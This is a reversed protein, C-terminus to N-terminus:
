RDRGQAVPERVLEFKHPAKKRGKIRSSVANKRKKGECVSLGKESNKHCRFALWRRASLM